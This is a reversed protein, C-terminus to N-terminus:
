ANEHRAAKQLAAALGDPSVQSSPALFDDITQAATEIAQAREAGQGKDNEGIIRRLDDRIMPLATYTVIANQIKIKPIDTLPYLRETDSVWSKEVARGADAVNKAKHRKERRIHSGMSPWAEYVKDLAEHIVEDDGEIRDIAPIVATDIELNNLLNTTYQRRAESTTIAIMPTEQPLLPDGDESPLHDQSIELNQQPDNLVALLPTLGERDILKFIEVDTRAQESWEAVELAREAKSFLGHNRNQKREIKGETKKSQRKNWADRYPTLDTYSGRKEERGLMSLEMSSLAKVLGLDGLVGALQNMALARKEEGPRGTDCSYINPIVLYSVSKHHIFHQRVWEWSADPARKVATRIADVIQRKLSGPLKRDPPTQPPNLATLVFLGLDIGLTALFAILDRGSITEGESNSTGENMGLLYGIGGFLYSGLNAWLDKVANAVGAPGESFTAERLTLVAPQEAQDAAARLRQALTPDYCSFSQAGPKISVADALARMESATSEGLQNSRAAINRASGRITSSMAEFSRKREEVTAGDLSSVATRLKELDAQVPTLWSTEVSNRLSSIQDRVSRRANYLPGRGAGSSIGCSGGSAEERSMQGNSWQVVSNLQIKVAELRAAVVAGADRADEQLGSLGKRTAEEGAILSWWFGYGFGISWLALFIYLPFTLFRDRLRRGYAFSERLLLWMLFTLAVVIAVVLLSNSVSLGGVIERGQAAAPSTSAGVIFDNMGSWTAYGSLVVLMLSAIGILTNRGFLYDIVRGIMSRVHPSKKKDPQKVAGAKAM